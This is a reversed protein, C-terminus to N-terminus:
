QDNLAGSLDISEETLYAILATADESSYSHCYNRDIDVIVTGDGVETVETALGLNLFKGGPLKVWGLFGKITELETLEPIQVEDM